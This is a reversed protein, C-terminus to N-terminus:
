GSDKGFSRKVFRSVYEVAMGVENLLEHRVQSFRIDCDLCTFIDGRIVSNPSGRYTADRVSVQEKKDRKEWDSKGTAGCISGKAKPSSGALQPSSTETVQETM